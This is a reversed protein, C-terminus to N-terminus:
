DGSRNACFHYVLRESRKESNEFENPDAFRISSAEDGVRFKMNKPMVEFVVWLLMANKAEVFMPKLDIPRMTFDGTYGVEEHLERAMAEHPDEGHDLGGGPLSWYPNNNEKVVLVHGSSDRIIAKLSVRYFSNPYQGIQTM